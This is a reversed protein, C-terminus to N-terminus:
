MYLTINADKAFELFTAAGAFEVGDILDAQKIGLVDLTMQCAIMRVGAEQCMEVLEPITAVNAKKMWGKMMSTAMHTMGPIVGIINPIPIPMAPNALPPVKLKHLKNKNIIDLGYFTFFVAVKMDMAAATSALILPPYAKDMTGQAAIIALKTPSINEVM